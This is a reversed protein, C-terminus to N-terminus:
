MLNLLPPVCYWCIASRVCVLTNIFNQTHSSNECYILLRTSEYPIIPIMNCIWHIEGACGSKFCNNIVVIRSEGIYVKTHSIMDCPSPSCIHSTVHKLSSIVDRKSVWSIIVIRSNITSKSPCEYEWMIEWCCTVSPNHSHLFTVKQSNM